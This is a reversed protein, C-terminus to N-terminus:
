LRDLLLLNLALDLDELIQGSTRINNGQEVNNPIRLNTGLDEVSMASIWSVVVAFLTLRRGENELVDVIGIKSAEVGLKIVDIDPEVDKLEELSKVEAVALTNHVSIDLRMVNHDIMLVSLNTM